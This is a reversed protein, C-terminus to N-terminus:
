HPFFASHFHTLAARHPRALQLLVNKMLFRTVAVNNQVQCEVRAMLCPTGGQERLSDRAFVSM